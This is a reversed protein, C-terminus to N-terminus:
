PSSRSTPTCRCPASGPRATLILLLRYGDIREILAGLLELSTPDVWHLDEVIMLMPGRQARARLLAILAELAQQKRRAPSSMSGAGGAPLPLSLLGALPALVDPVAFGARALARELTALKTEPSDQRTWGLGQTLLDIVAYLPSSQYYSSCYCELWRQGEAAAREKLVRVLRSKGIGPEGCILVVQGAGQRVQSWRDALLATEQERDVLETLGVSASAELRSRAGTERLVRYLRIPGPIGKIPQAGLADCEFQGRILGYTAASMVVENPGALSQLRAAINPTEGFIAFPERQEPGPLEGAVVLGTHIGVRVALRVGHQPEFQANLGGVAAIVDLAALVARCADDEHARPYGFYVLIGDGMYRALYGDFREIMEASAAQYAAVVRRLDEPDLQTSIATSDVLDCFM